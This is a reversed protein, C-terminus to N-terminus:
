LKIRTIQFWTKDVVIPAYYSDTYIWGDETNYTLNFTPFQSQFKDMTGDPGKEFSMNSHDTTIHFHTSDNYGMEIQGQEPAGKDKKSWM